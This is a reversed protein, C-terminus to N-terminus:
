EDEEEEDGCQKQHIRTAPSIQTVHRRSAGTWAGNVMEMRILERSLMLAYTKRERVFKTIPKRNQTRRHFGSFRDGDCASELRIEDCIPVVQQANICIDVMHMNLPNTNITSLSTEPECTSTLGTGTVPYMFLM